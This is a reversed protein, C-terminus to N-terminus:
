LHRRREPEPTNGQQLGKNQRKHRWSLIQGPRSFPLYGRNESEPSNGQQLRRNYAEANKPNLRTVENIDSIAGENDGNMFRALGRSYYTVPNVVSFECEGYFIAPLKRMAYEKKLTAFDPYTIAGEDTTELYFSGGGASVRLNVHGRMSVLMSKVGFQNLIDAVVLSSTDCDLSGSAIATVLLVPNDPSFPYQGHMMPLIEKCLSLLEYKNQPDRTLRKESNLPDEYGNERVTAYVSEIFDALEIKKAEFEKANMNAASREFHIIGNMDNSGTCILPKKLLTPLPSFFGDQPEGWPAHATAKAKDSLFLQPGTM